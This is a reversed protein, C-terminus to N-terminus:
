DTTKTYQIVFVCDVNQRSYMVHCYFWGYGNDKEHQAFYFTRKQTSSPMYYSKDTIVFAKDIDSPLYSSLDINGGYIDGNFHTTFSCNAQVVKEYLPKGDIWKGVVKEETSYEHWESGSGAYEKGNM